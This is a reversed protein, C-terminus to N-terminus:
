KKMWEQVFDQYSDSVPLETGSALVVKKSQVSTVRDVAVIYSRHIRRFRAAPLKELVSKLTMLTLLPRANQLHIKIYDELGEIYDIDNFAIKLVRYESRIFLHGADEQEKKQQRYVSEAKQVAKAFRDLTFPKLLYDVAELEFGEYAFNKYATTFIILPKPSLSRVLDIGTIDPMNIDVFLLNTTNTRLWEAAAVADDFTQLLQLATIRKAYGAVLTLALPEDDIAICTLPM